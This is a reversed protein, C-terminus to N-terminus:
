ARQVPAAEHMDRGTPLTLLLNQLAAIPAPKTLHADFGAEAARRRDDPQGYGTLAVLLTQDMESRGRLRRAVEYGDLEPMAIDLLVVDPPDALAAAIAASGDHVAAADQGLRRLVMVLTDASEKLDDVVLIRRSRTADGAPEAAGIRDDDALNSPPEALAPLTVVFASGRGPGDSLATITGHHLEILQRALWLGLGLGGHSRSLTADVQRFPEFIESLMHQPIGPGNDRICVVARDGQKEALVSIVGDRASYKAANNLINSFVQTLRAIDGNVYLPEDPLTVNLRHHCGDVIPQVAEVAYAIPGSIDVAEYRLGIIGRSIRSLDLLDEILRVLQRVQREIVCRAQELESPDDAIYPWLQLVNSIPALPNRLEHALTALFQDKRVDAEKLAQEAAFRDEIDTSTGFWNVTEGSENKIPVARVLHWRMQGDHRRLRYNEEWPEQRALAAQWSAAVRPRDADDCYGQWGYGEVQDPRAGTYDYWRQNFWFRFGDPRAMWVLQPMTDALTRFLKEAERRWATHLADSLLSITVGVFIFLVANLGDALSDIRLSYMPPVVFLVGLFAGLFTALLGPGLGGWWAAAMVALVFPLLRGQEALAQELALRVVLVLACGVIAIVYGLRRQPRNM